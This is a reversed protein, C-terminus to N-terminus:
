QDDYYALDEEETFESYPFNVEEIEEYDDDDYQYEEDNVPDAEDVENIQHKRTHRSANNKGAAKKENWFRQKDKRLLEQARALKRCTAVKHGKLGCLLCQVNPNNNTGLKKASNSEQPDYGRGRSANSHHYNSGKQYGRGIGRNFYGKGRSAQNYNKQRWNVEDKSEEPEASIGTFAERNEM